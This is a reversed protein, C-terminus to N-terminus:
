LKQQILSMDNLIMPLSIPISANLIEVNFLIDYASAIEGTKMQHRHRKRTKSVPTFFTTGSSSVEKSM